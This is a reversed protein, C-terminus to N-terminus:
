RRLSREELWDAVPPWINAPAQSGGLIAMHGGPVELFTQDRSSAFRQLARASQLTVVPDSRGAVLLLNAEIDSLRAASGAIPLRGSALVNDAWLYQVTDQIVGGPYAVMDDLFASNTAHAAVHERDHLKRLLELHPRLSAVPSTLKYLVSNAWGPARWYRPPSAHPRLRRSRGLRQVLRGVRRYQRGIVGNDHYDCPAGILALNRIDPDRSLATYAYAFLGGFSWGHLSLPRVGAHARVHELMQPLLEAIYTELRWQDHRALPRGWDVLYLQFGRALLYRVLSRQPFLDYIAMNVALPPVLVLPVQVAQRRVAVTAGDVEIQDEQLPPYWRLRVIDHQHIVEYPTRGSQDLAQADFLRDRLNTIRATFAAGAERLRRPPSQESSSKM